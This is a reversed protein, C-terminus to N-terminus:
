RWWLKHHVCRRTCVAFLPCRNEYHQMENECGPHAGRCGTYSLVVLFWAVHSAHTAELRLLPAFCVFWGNQGKVYSLETDHENGIIAISRPV